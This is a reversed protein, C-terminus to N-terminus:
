VAAGRAENGDGQVCGVCKGREQGAHEQRTGASASPSSHAEYSVSFVGIEGLIDNLSARFLTSGLSRERTYGIRTNPVGTTIGSRDQM